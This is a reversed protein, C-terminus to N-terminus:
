SIVVILTGDRVEVTPANADRGAGGIFENSLGLTSGCTLVANNLPYKLGKLTVGSAKGGAPFISVIGSKQPELTIKDNTVATIVENEGILYGIMGKRSVYTLVSISALTHDLRGGLCGYIYFTNFGCRIAEEVALELDSEDKESPFRVVEVNHPVKELSKLTDFDGVLLNVPVPCADAGIIFDSIFAPNFGSFEGAGIITCAKMESDDEPM